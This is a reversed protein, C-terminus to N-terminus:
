SGDYDLWDILNSATWIAYFIDEAIFNPESHNQGSNLIGSMAKSEAATLSFTSQLKLQGNIEGSNVHLSSVQFADGVQKNSVVGYTRLHFKKLGPQPDIRHLIRPLGAYRAVVTKDFKLSCDSFSPSQTAWYNATIFPSIQAYVGGNIVEAEDLVTQNV